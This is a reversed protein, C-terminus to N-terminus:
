APLTKGNVQQIVKYQLGGPLTVVSLYRTNKELFEGEGWPVKGRASECRPAFRTMAFNLPTM